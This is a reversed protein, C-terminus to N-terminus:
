QARDPQWDRDPEASEPSWASEAEDAAEGISPLVPEDVSGFFPRLALSRLALPVPDFEIRVVRALLVLTPLMLLSSLLFLGQYGVEGGLTALLYGGALSGLVMALANTLNFTTLVSAREDEAIAEFFLLNTSLEYTAWAFGALIQIIVLHWYAGALAWLAPMPVILLGGLYLLRYAGFRKAQRGLWPMILARSALPIAILPVYLWYNSELGQQKLLFASIFPVAIFNAVQVAFMYLLLRGDAGGQLRRLLTLPGVLRRTRAMLPPESQRSLFMISITRALCAIWFLIGFAFLRTDDGTSNFQELLSTGAFLSVLMCLQIAQTRQAFFGARVNRPILRGMWTNWAPGTAMGAAHYLTATLFAVWTPIAGQIAFWVLPMYMSAQVLGCLVVWRRYSGLRQVLVPGVLQLLAGALVPVTAILGSAVPSIGAALFFPILYAEGLGITLSWFMADGMSCNLDRRVTAARPQTSM